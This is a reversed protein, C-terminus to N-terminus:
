QFRSLDLVKRRKKGKGSDRFDLVYEPKQGLFTGTPIEVKFLPGRERERIKVKEWALISGCKAALFSVTKHALLRNGSEGREKWWIFKL